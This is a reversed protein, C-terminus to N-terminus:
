KRGLVVPISVISAQEKARRVSETTEEHVDCVCVRSKQNDECDLDISEVCREIMMGMTGVVKSCFNELREVSSLLM